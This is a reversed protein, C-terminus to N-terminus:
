RVHFRMSSGPAKSGHFGWFAGGRVSTVRPVVISLAAFREGDNMLFIVSRYAPV